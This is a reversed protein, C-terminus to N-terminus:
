YKQLANIIYIVLLSIMCIEYFYKLFFFKYKSMEEIQDQRLQELSPYIDNNDDDKESEKKEKKSETNKKTKAKKKLKPSDEDQEDKLLSPDDFEDNEEVTKSITKTEKEPDLSLIFNPTILTIIIFFLFLFSIQIKM